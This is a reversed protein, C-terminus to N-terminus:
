PVIGCVDEDERNTYSDSYRVHIFFNELINDTVHENEIYNKIEKM